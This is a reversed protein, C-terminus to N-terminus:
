ATVAAPLPTVAGAPSGASPSAAWAESAGAAAALIAALRGVREADPEPAAGAAAAEALREAREAVYKATSALRPQPVGRRAALKVLRAVMAAAEPRTVDTHAVASEVVTMLASRFAEGVPGEDGAEKSLESLSTVFSLAEEVLEAYLEKLEEAYDANEAYLVDNAAAGGPAPRYPLADQGMTTLTDALAVVCRVRGASLPDWPLLRVREALARVLHFPGKTPHGPAMVLSGAIRRVSAEAAAERAPTMEVAGADPPGDGTAAAVLPIEAVAAALLADAQPACDNCLASEAAACYVVLRHRPSALGPATVHVFAFAARMFAASRRNHRGKALALARRTLRVGALCVRRRTGQLIRFSQRAEALLELQRQLDRGFDVLEVLRGCLHGAAALEPAPSSRDLSDHLTRAMDMLTHVLVPDDTPKGAEVFGALMRRCVDVKKSGSFLDLLSVFADSTVVAPDPGASDPGSGSVLSVLIRELHPLCGPPLRRGGTAGAAPEAPAPSASSASASAAADPDAAAAADVAAQRARKAVVRLVLLLDRQSYHRRLLEVLPAACEVFAEIDEVASMAPWADSVLPMRDEEPPPHSVLGDVLARYVDAHPRESPLDATAKVMPVVARLFGAYHRGDFAGLVATLVVPSTCHERYLRMVQKFVGTPARWAVQSCLWRLPPAFLDEYTAPSVGLRELNALRHDQSVQPWTRLQDGLCLVVCAREAAGSVLRAAQKALYFRAYAAVLPDGIGRCTHALRELLSAYDEEGLFRYCELLALEMFLRPVLERICATKYLWNRTTERTAAGVDGATFDRPLAGAGMRRSDSDAKARLRDFVKRGFSDLIGSCMAFASPYFQPVSGVRAVLKSTKIAIKLALVRKNKSWAQELGEHLREIHQQYGSQTMDTTAERDRSADSAAIRKKAEEVSMAKDQPDEMKAADDFLKRSLTIHGEVTYRRLIRQRAAQWSLAPNSARGDDVGAAHAGGPGSSMSAHAAASAASASGAAAGLPDSSALLPDEAGDGGGQSASAADKAQALKSRAYALGADDLPHSRPVAVAATFM